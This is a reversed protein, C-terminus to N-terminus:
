GIPVWVLKTEVVRVDTKELPIDVTITEEVIAAFKDVIQNVAEALEGELDAMEQHKAHYRTAETEARAEARATATRRSAVQKLPNSSSRGGLFAGLLDGATGLLNEQSKAAAVADAEQYRTQATSMQEKIRDIRTQFRDRLKALEADSAADAADACRQSFDAESEGVRSYLKLAQNGWVQLPRSAVLHNRLDTAVGSWFTKTELKADPLLFTAGPPPELRFDRDDHDVTLVDEVDVIGDLPYIVAEYTERHNVGAKTDDYVLQVTVAAAPQHVTGTPDAGVDPAWAAAPDLYTVTIGDAIKPPVPVAAETPEGAPEPVPSSGPDAAAAGPAPEVRSGGTLSTIHDRTLPGALYSIAWRTAFVRPTSTKTSHLLFQRKGLGSIREDMLEVDIDGSASALGELIRKKDNETQLRGVMWTGANSMAKYDLDVPNQTCLVMGVGHARAQKLITLIPTKSPPEKTPPAFGFVEDMYILAKLESTGPQSRIWTVTKGLLLTVLFQREEDSLHAMYIIAAKTKDGGILEEIDLPPGEMWSAFSPSALLGNLKLALQM